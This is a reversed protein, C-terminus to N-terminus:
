NDNRVLNLLFERENIVLVALCGFAIGWRIMWMNIFIYFCLVVAVIMISPLVIIKFPIVRDNLRRSYICHLILSLGYSMLTTYAAGVYGWQLIFFYNLAINVVAAIITNISIFVTKKYYHEVNVYLTYIFILYNSLVIPPIVKIGDM